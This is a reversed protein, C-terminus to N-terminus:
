RRPCGLAPPLHRQLALCDDPDRRAGTGCAADTDIWVRTPKVVDRATPLYQLDPLPVEGTRWLKVPVALAAVALITITGIIILAWKLVTKAM